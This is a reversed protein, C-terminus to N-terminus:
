FYFNLPPQPLPEPTAENEFKFNKHRKMCEEICDTWFKGKWTCLKLCFESLRDYNERETITTEICPFIRGLLDWFCGSGKGVAAHVQLLLLILLFKYAM